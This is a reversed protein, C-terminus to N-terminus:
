LQQVWWVHKIVPKCEFKCTFCTCLDLKFCGFSLNSHTLVDKSISSLNSHTLVDKSISSLNSHTLVDKSISSLNSHTLVDKSITLLSQHNILCNPLIIGYFDLTLNITNLAVKLLIETLLYKHYFILEISIYPFIHFTIQSSSQHNKTNLAVKLLIEAM